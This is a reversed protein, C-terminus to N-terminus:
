AARDREAAVHQDIQRSLISSFEDAFSEMRAQTRAVRGSLINYFILAPIAAFLGIATAFLAEAIGPAVVALSTNKSVAISQFSSMIGWVTGFLGVFPAASAVSALVLLQSELREMERAISVDLVKEIRAQLGMFASAANTFSRKWERMAAVFLTAMGTTPRDDLDEYLEELSHGSWFSDEFRDMSKEVSSILVFKNIIIAWSWLSAFLLGLMVAKVVFHAHWFMGWFSMDMASGAAIADAPNM